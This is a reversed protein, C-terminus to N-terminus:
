SIKTYIKKSCFSRTLYETKGSVKFNLIDLYVRRSEDDALRSYVYDFKEENERIYELTFLGTGAVPVEPAYVSHELSISHIKELVDELHTAFALIVNFDDYKECIESYKKARFGKFSHGRVFDDSAFIDSVGVGYEGLAEIIKEAGNGMGYIVAPKDSKALADWINEKESLKEIM